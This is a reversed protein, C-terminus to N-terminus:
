RDAWTRVSPAEYRAAERAADWRGQSNGGSSGVLAGLNRQARAAARIASPNTLVDPRMSHVALVSTASRDPSWTIGAVLFPSRIGPIWARLVLYPITVEGLRGKGVCYMLGERVPDPDDARWRLYRPCGRHEDWIFEELGGIEATVKHWELLSM